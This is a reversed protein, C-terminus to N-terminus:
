RNQWVIDPILMRNAFTGNWNVKLGARELEERVINGVMPGQKEEAAPDTPGFALYPGGEDVAIGRTRFRNPNEDIESPTSKPTHIQHESDSQIRNDLEPRSTMISYLDVSSEDHSQRQESM